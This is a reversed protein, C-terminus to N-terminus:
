HLREVETVSLSQILRLVNRLDDPDCFHLAHLPKVGDEVYMRM